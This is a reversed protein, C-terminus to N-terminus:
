APHLKAYFTALRPRRYLALRSAFWLGATDKVVIRPIEDPPTSRRCTDRRVTYLHSFGAASAIMRYDDDYYGQPWCLHPSDGTHQALTARSAALDDALAARRGAPDAIAKDWRTHSHTHSHFEFTGAAQMAAVESWRLMVEDARGADILAHADRHNPCAPLEGGMGAHRRPQSESGIRGTILFIVGHLGFEQLVPHAHVYNDLYGDDFTILVSKDPLAEGALFRELDRCGVSRYGHRALWAMQQRFTDPSVTVLGPNPTVHHYMLVPLARASM